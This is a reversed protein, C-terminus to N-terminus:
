TIYIYLVYGVVLIIPVSCITSLILCIKGLRHTKKVSNKKNNKILLFGALMLAITIILIAIVFCWFLIITPANEM